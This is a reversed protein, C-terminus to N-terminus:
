PKDIQNKDTTCQSDNHPSPSKYTQVLCFRARPDAWYSLNYGGAAAAATQELTTIIKNYNRNTIARM